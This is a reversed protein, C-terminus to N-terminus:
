AQDADERAVVERIHIAVDRPNAQCIILGLREFGGSEQTYPLFEFYLGAGPGNHTVVNFAIERGLGPMVQRIVRIADGWGKVVARVEAEHLEHLYQRSSDKLLLMMNYPRSMFYPVFLVTPGYDKILYEAPNHRLMYSSFPERRSQLFRWNDAFRKPMVNSLAIQQHGHSLSGGVLHGYNKVILVYAQQGPGEKREDQNNNSETFSSLLKRELVALRKMVIVGDTPPMNHWDHDHVSSTWQLFHLGFSSGSEPLASNKTNDDPDIPRSAISPYLAPYLNKNIFTFGDSLEAVDLVGTTKGHCIACSSNRTPTEQVPPLNDHPRKARSSHFIIRDGNRPDTVYSGDPLYDSLGKESRFLDLLTDYSLTEINDAQLIAELKHRALSQNM